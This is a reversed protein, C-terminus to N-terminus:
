RATFTLCNVTGAEVGVRISDTICEYDENYSCSTVKCAGVGAERSVAKTHPAGKFYTDCGPHLGHGITIARAHCSQDVNYGCETVACESVIPMEITLKKM